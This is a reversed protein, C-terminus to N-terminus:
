IAEPTADEAQDTTQIKMMKGGFDKNGQWNMMNYGGRYMHSMSRLQGLQVGFCFVTILLALVFFRRLIYMHHKNYKTHSIDCSICNCACDCNNKSNM